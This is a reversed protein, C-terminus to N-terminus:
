FAALKRLADILDRPQPLVEDELEKNYPVPCDEGAVRVIPADLYPFEKESIRAAIEAGPIDVIGLGEIM